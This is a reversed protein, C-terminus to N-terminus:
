NTVTISVGLSFASGGSGSAESLLVYSGNPVTTTNWSDLWGYITSTATGVLHGSYGYSGGLLWFEVSTAKSATADLTAATGSLTAGNSPIVVSTTPRPANNVTISVGSSVASGGPGSAISVLVYSGNPVTTTNWSDLWGYITLTGTGVLHGTYGYSGGLLGFEVSTANSASADLTAATGSLTAGKSPILVGTTPVPSAGIAGINCPTSWPKGTQDNGTCDSAATVHGIAASSPELAITKTPGGNSALGSPDLGAPTHSLSHNGGSFGCSGDDDLNYGSDTLTGSADVCDLGAGSNAVITAVLPVAPAGPEDIYIGGGDGPAASNESLTVHTVTLTKDFAGSANTNYIGGGVSAGRTSNGSLTSDTVVASWNNYIGGGGDGISQGTVRNGSLTSDTVTLTDQNEIGGGFETSTNGSLTSGTVTATGSDNDIAGGSEASNGSLTSGAVSLTGGYQIIGGGFGDSSTSNGSLTSDTVTVTGGENYIGGGHGGATVNTTNGSLTSGTVSLTGSDNFIGGGTISSNDTLTTDTVTLMGDSWIGGGSGINASNDSLTSNTINLTGLNHIGGGVSGGADAISDEITLGSIAASVGSDVLFVTSEHNGSVALAGAGPGDITLNRSIEIYGSTLTILSCSPSPAFDITAGAGADIVAQRLSGAGSESCTTVTVTSASAPLVGVVLSATLAGGSVLSGALVARVSRKICLAM